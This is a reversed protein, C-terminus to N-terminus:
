KSGKEWQKSESIGRKPSASGGASRMVVTVDGDRKDILGAAGVRGLEINAAAAPAAICM